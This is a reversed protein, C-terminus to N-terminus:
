EGPCLIGDARTRAGASVNSTVKDSGSNRRHKMFIHYNDDNREDSRWSSITVFVCIQNTRIFANLRMEIASFHFLPQLIHVNLEM